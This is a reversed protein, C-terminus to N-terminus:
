ISRVSAVPSFTEVFDVGYIQLFGRAVLRAKYIYPNGDMDTKVKFLWKCDVTRCGDPLDVLDWVQNEEMSEMESKMAVLWKESDTGVLAQDYTTPECSELLWLDGCATVLYGLYRDPKHIERTSRRLTQVENRPVVTQTEQSVGVQEQPVQSTNAADNEVLPSNEEIEVLDIKRGSKRRALYERELFFADRAVVIANESRNLFIYGKTNQPYGIFNFKDSKPALKDSILRKVYAECGWVKLYSM